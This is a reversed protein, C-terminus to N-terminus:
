AFMFHSCFFCQAVFAPKLSFLIGRDLSWALLYIGHSCSCRATAAAALSSRISEHELTESAQTMCLVLAHPSLPPSRVHVDREHLTGTVILVVNDIMHGYTCYDLFQGM